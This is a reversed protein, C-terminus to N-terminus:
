VFVPLPWSHWSADADSNANAMNGAFGGDPRGLWDTVVGNDNRWLIDDRRDGNFDGIQVATWADSVAQHPYIANGAFSGDPKGLWDTIRGVDNRWLVDDRGDGNFDGVGIIHWSASANNASGANGAFGGNAQGLWDVVTGTQTNRWLIDDRGDGNFDGTGAVQWAASISNRANGLNGIFGGNALGLWDTVTGDDKRWLIDDRGDGNFDGTGIVEWAATVSNDANAINGTFGGSANGLWDTIKGNDNRWLIDDRGDGNFDGTGVIHWSLGADASASQSNGAFGGNTRGLWDTVRGTADNRWLVDSRGDGNFDNSADAPV